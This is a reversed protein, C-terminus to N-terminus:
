WQGIPCSKYPLSARFKVFCGCKSCTHNLLYNCNQCISLREDREEDSLVDAELSLQEIVLEDVNLQAVQEKIRCGVCVM